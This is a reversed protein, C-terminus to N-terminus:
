RMTLVGDSMLSDRLLQRASFLRSRVTKERIGLMEAIERYSFDRFHRLVIVARYEPKLRMLARQVMRGLEARALANEPTERDVPDGLDTIEKRARSQLLNLSENVAIRYIWSYFKFQPDYSEVNRFAKLFVTQTIDSADDRNGTLRLAVNYVPGQYRELLTEFAAHNGRRCEMVLITDADM